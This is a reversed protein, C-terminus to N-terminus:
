KRIVKKATGDAQRIIYLGSPLQSIDPNLGSQQDVLTGTANYIRLMGANEGTQVADISTPRGSVVVLTLDDTLREHYKNYFACAYKGPQLRSVSGTLNLDVPYQDDIIIATYTIITTDGALTGAEDIRDAKFMVLGKYVGETAACHAKVFFYSGTWATDPVVIDTLQLDACNQRRVCRELMINRGEITAVVTSDTEDNVMNIDEMEDADTAYHFHCDYWKADSELLYAPEVIYRKPATTAPMQSLGHMQYGNMYGGDVVTTATPEPTDAKVYAVEGTEEDTLKLGFIVSTSVVDHTYFPTTVSLTQQEDATMSANESAFNMATEHYVQPQVVAPEGERLPQTGIIARENASFDVTGGIGNHNPSLASLRFFGDSVGDWGWNFHFYGNEYGDLVFCHGGLSGDGCYIIPRSAALEDYLMDFWTQFDFSTQYVLRTTRDYGFNEVLAKHIYYEYAGSGGGASTEYFMYVAAGVDAMLTAVASDQEATTTQGTYRDVMLDWQYFSTSLDRSVHVEREAGPYRSDFDFSGKGQKPWQHYNMVQATATAVCGTVCREEYSPCFNNYPAGQGWQTALLPSVASLSPTAYAEEGAAAATQVCQSERQLKELWWRMADPLRDADVSGSDSYGLIPQSVGDDDAVVVFGANGRNFLFAGSTHGALMLSPSPASPMAKPGSGLFQQALQRAQTADIPDAMSSISLLSLALFLIRKM